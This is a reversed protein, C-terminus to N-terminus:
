EAKTQRLLSYVCSCGVMTVGILGIYDVVDADGALVKILLGVVLFADFITFLVSGFKDMHGSRGNEEVM